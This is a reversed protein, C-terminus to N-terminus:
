GVNKGSFQIYDVGLYPTEGLYRLKGTHFVKAQTSLSVDSRVSLELVVRNFDPQSSFVVRCSLSDAAIKEFIFSIRCYIKGM